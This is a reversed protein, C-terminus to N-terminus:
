RLQLKVRERDEVNGDRFDQESLSGDCFDSLRFPFPGDGLDHEHYRHQSGLFFMVTEFAEFHDPKIDAHHMASAFKDAMNGFKIIFDFNRARDSPFWEWSKQDKEKISLMVRLGMHCIDHEEPIYQWLMGHNIFVM